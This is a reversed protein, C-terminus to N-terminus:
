SRGNLTQVAGGRIKVASGISRALGLVLPSWRLISGLIKRRPFVIRTATWGLLVGALPAFPSLRRWLALMRDLWALPQAVRAAAEACQTRRLAIDWRLATKYAALRILERQPYM